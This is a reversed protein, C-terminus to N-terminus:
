EQSKFKLTAMIPYHDSLEVDFNQHDLVEFSRDAFIYDIRFPMDMLSYTRGFGRGAENFTDLMDGKLLKYIRSFPTNNLDGCIITPYNVQSLHKKLIEVQEEQKVFTNTLRKFLRGSNEKSIASPYLRLSQLHGNYVRITDHNYLLDVYISNNTTNPFDLAGKDIIPYKSFIAQVVYKKGNHFIYNVFKYPYSEFDKTRRNDFEQFVLIDPDLGLTFEVIQNGTDKEPIWDYLDFARVNYSLITLGGIDQGKKYPVKFFSDFFLFNLLLICLSPIAYNRKKSLMWFIMFLFNIIMLYYVMLSLFSLIPFYRIPAYQVFYSAFLLFAFFM